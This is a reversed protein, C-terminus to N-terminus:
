EKRACESDLGKLIELGHKLSPLIYELAERVAKPSGPLNVILTEGRIGAMARSLMARPTISLSYFLIADTIGRAEREIVMKTAEPTVDRVSFGTGGTTLVLDAGHDCLDKMEDALMQKEDPLVVKRMIEYGAETLLDAIVQGSVDEREGAYGKDSSTIIAAKM